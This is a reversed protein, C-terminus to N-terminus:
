ATSVAVVVPADIVDGNLGVRHGVAQLQHLQGVSVNVVKEFVTHRGHLLPM